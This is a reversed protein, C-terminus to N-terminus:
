KKVFRNKNNEWWTANLEDALTDADAQKAKSNATVELYKIYDLIRQLGFADVRSSLTINLQNDINREIVM